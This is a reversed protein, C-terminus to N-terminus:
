PRLYRWGENQREVIHTVGSPAYSIGGYMDAKTVKANRMTNECALLGINSDLANALRASVKSEAKLMEIGPGHTVIEIVVNGKGFDTQLNGANNLVINWKAPDNETVHFVIRTKAAAQTGAQQVGTTGSAAALEASFAADPGLAFVSLALAFAVPARLARVLTGIDAQQM